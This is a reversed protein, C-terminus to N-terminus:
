KRKFRSMLAGISQRVIETVVALLIVSVLKHVIGMAENAVLATIASTVISDTAHNNAASTM